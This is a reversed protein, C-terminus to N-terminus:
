SFCTWADYGRWFVEVQNFAQVHVLGKGLSWFKCHQDSAPMTEKSSLGCLVRLEWRWPVRVANRLGLSLVRAIRRACSSFNWRELELPCFRWSGSRFRRASKPTRPSKGFFRGIATLCLYRGVSFQVILFKSWIYDHLVTSLFYYVFRKEKTLRLPYHRSLSGAKLPGWNGFGKKSRRLSWKEVLAATLLGLSQVFNSTWPTGVDSACVLLLWKRGFDILQLDM